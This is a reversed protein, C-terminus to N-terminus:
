IQYYQLEADEFEEEFRTIQVPYVEELFEEPTLESYTYVGDIEYDGEEDDLVRVNVELEIEPPEEYLRPGIVLGVQEKELGCLDLYEEIHRVPDYETREVTIM